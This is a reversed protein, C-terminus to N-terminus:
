KRRRRRHTPFQGSNGECEKSSTSAQHQLQEALSSITRDGINLLKEFACEGVTVETVFSYDGHYLNKIIEVDGLVPELDNRLISIGKFGQGVIGGLDVKNVPVGKLRGVMLHLLIKLSADPLQLPKGAITVRTRRGIRDGPIAIVIGDKLNMQRKPPEQCRDHTERGSVQLAQRIRDSVQRSKLPKQIVDSAGDKMVEVAENVERAFGSVILVPLWFPVGNHDGYKERIKRLLAKGHEVHGKISDSDSKIELDLLILCFPKKKLEVLADEVNDVVISGCDISRLIESLDDATEADDEVVLAIHREKM